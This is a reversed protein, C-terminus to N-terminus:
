FDIPDPKKTWDRPPADYSAPPLELPRRDLIAVIIFTAVPGLFLSALWWGLASHGKGQALGANILALTFWGVAWSRNSHVVRTQVVAQALVFPLM